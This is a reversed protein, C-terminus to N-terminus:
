DKKKAVNPPKPGKIQTSYERTYLLSKIPKVGIHLDRRGFGGNIPVWFELM